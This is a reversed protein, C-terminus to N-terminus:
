GEKDATCIPMLSGRGWPMIYEIAPKSAGCGVYEKIRFRQADRRGVKATVTKATRTLVQVQVVMDHDGTARFRYTAGAEFRITTTM